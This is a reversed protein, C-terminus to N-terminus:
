GIPRDARVVDPRSLEGPLEVRNRRRAFEAIFRPRRFGPAIRPRRVRPSLKRDIFPAADDEDRGARWGEVIVASITVAGIQEGVRQKGEIGSRALPEPVELRDMVIEPVKIQISRRHQGGDALIAPLDIHDRLRALRSEEVDELALGPLRDPRDFFPGHLRAIHRTLIIM